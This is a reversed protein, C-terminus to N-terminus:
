FQVLFEYQQDRNLTRVTEFCAELLQARQKDM